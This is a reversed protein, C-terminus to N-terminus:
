TLIKIPLQSIATQACTCYLIPWFCRLVVPVVDPAELQLANAVAVNELSTNCAPVGDRCLRCICRSAYRTIRIHTYIVISADRWVDYTAAMVIWSDYLGGLLLKSMATILSAVLIVNLSKTWGIQRGVSLTAAPVLHTTVPQPNM